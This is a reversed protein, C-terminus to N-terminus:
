NMKQSCPVSVKAVCCEDSDTASGPNGLPSVSGLPPLVFRNKGFGAHFQIFNSESPACGLYGGQSGGIHISPHWCKAIPSGLNGTLNM